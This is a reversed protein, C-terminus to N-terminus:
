PEAPSSAEVPSTKGETPAAASAARRGRTAHLSPVIDAADDEHWRLYHVARRCEEYARVFLTYARTRREAPDAADPEKVGPQDRAGLAVLIQPGLQAAREVDELEVTTRSEVTSCVATFLASLAVLDNAKDINGQGERIAKVSARDLYGKHALAEAAEKPVGPKGAPVHSKSSSPTEPDRNKPM